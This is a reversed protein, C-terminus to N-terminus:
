AQSAKGPGPPPPGERGWLATTERLASIGSYLTAEECIGVFFMPAFAAEEETFHPHTLPNQVWRSVNVSVSRCLSNLLYSGEQKFCTEGNWDTLPGCLSCAPTPEVGFHLAWLEWQCNPTRGPRDQMKLDIKINEEVRNRNKFTSTKFSAQM